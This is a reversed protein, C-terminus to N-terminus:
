IQNQKLINVIEKKLVPPKSHKYFTCHELLMGVQRGEKEFVMFLGARDDFEFGIFYIFSFVLQKDTEHTKSKSMGEGKKSEIWHCGNKKLVAIYKRNKVWDETSHKYAVVEDLNRYREFNSNM